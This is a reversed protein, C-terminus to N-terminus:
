CYEQAVLGLTFRPKGNLFGWRGITHGMPAISSTEKTLQAACEFLILFRHCSLCRSTLLCFVRVIQNVANRVSMKTAPHPSGSWFLIGPTVGGVTIEMAGGFSESPAHELLTTVAVKLSAM